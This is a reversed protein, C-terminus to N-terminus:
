LTLGLKQFQVYYFSLLYTHLLHFARPHSQSSLWLVLWGNLAYLLIILVAGPFPKLPWAQLHRLAQPHGTPLPVRVNLSFSKSSPFSHNLCHPVQLTRGCM